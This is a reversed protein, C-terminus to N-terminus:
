CLCANDIAAEESEALWRGVESDAIPFLGHLKDLAALAIKDGEPTPPPPHPASVAWAMKWFEPIGGESESNQGEATLERHFWGGPQAFAGALIDVVLEDLPLRRNNAEAQLEAALKEPLTVTTPM